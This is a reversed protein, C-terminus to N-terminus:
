AEPLADDVEPPMGPPTMGAPMPALGRAMDESASQADRAQRKRVVGYDFGLETVATEDDVWNNRKAIELATALAQVNANNLPAYSVSFADVTRLMVPVGADDTVPDGDADTEEVMEPLRGADVADQLVRRFLPTWLEEILTRQFDAFTMLAPLQQSTSSALNANSGDSLMYEPLGFGVANMLKIQRGDESADDAGIPNALPEVSVAENEVAISGPTPPRRWRSAVAAVADAANTRVRVLWMFSTRWHNQRARNELWEKYARLWPLVAYLEPRGRLEYGHRNIAVHLINAADVTETQTGYTQTPADGASITRQFHYARRRRFFGPETEIWHCEWPRQPVAALEGSTDGEGAYLRLMIEGDVLLDIVAQREYCRIENDESEIFAKLWDDVAPNKASLSFGEGVAFSAIYKCARNALPNRAYAAHTNELVYRRTTWSWERLPDETPPMFPLDDAVRQPTDFQFRFTQQANETLFRGWQGSQKLVAELQEPLLVPLRYNVGDDLSYNSGSIVAGNTPPDPRQFARKIAQRLNM